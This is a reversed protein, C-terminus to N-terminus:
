VLGTGWGLKSPRRLEWGWHTKTQNSGLKYLFWWLVDENFLFFSPNPNSNIHTLHIVLKWDWILTRTLKVHPNLHLVLELRMNSFLYNTSDVFSMNYALVSMTTEHFQNGLFGLFHIGLLSHFQLFMLYYRRM